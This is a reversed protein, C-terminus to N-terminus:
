GGGRQMFLDFHRMFAIRRDVEVGDFAFEVTLRPFRALGIRRPELAQWALVLLGGGALHIRAGTGEIWDLRHAAVAPPLSRTWDSLTIGMERAFRERREPPFM